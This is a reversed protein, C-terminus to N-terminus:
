RSLCRWSTRFLSCTQFRPDQPWRIRRFLRRRHSRDELLFLPFPFSPPTEAAAPHRAPYLPELSLRNRTAATFSPGLTGDEAFFLLSGTRAAAGNKPTFYYPRRGWEYQLGWVLALVVCFFGFFAPIALYWALSQIHTEIGITYNAAILSSVFFLTILLAPRSSSRLWSVFYHIFARM